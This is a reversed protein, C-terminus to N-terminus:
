STPVTAEVFLNPRHVLLAIREEALVAVKNSTFFDSHQNGVKIVTQMRDAITAGMRSGVLAKGSEMSRTRIAATGWTLGALVAPAGPTYGNDFSNAHRTTAAVWFNLPNCAVFDAEGDVNEIKGIAQGITAPFDGSVVNQTQVQGSDNFQRIGKMNAGTGPGNLIQAEERLAVMYSLRTDIYGRLTPADELIEETVPVWAAIKVVPALDPEWEMTVEAKAGGEAVATAGAENTTADLERVYPVAGLGTEIVNLVDRIFLRQQQVLPPIPSGLPRLVGASTDDGYTFAITGGSILARSERGAIAGRVNIEAYGSGFRGRHNTYREDNTVREGISRRPDDPEVFAAQPGRPEPAAARELATLLPDLENIADVASRVDDAHTDGRQDEPTRLLGGLYDGAAHLQSRIDATTPQETLEPAFPM